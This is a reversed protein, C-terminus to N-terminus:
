NRFLDCEPEDGHPPRCELRGKVGGLCKQRVVEAFARRDDEVPWNWVCSVLASVVAMGLSFPIVETLTISMVYGVGEIAAMPMFVAGFFLAFIVAAKRILESLFEASHLLCQKFYAPGRLIDLDIISAESRNLTGQHAGNLYIEVWPQDSARAVDKEKERIVYVQCWTWCVVIAASILALQFWIASWWGPAVGFSMLWIGSLGLGFLGAVQMGGLLIARPYHLFIRFLASM